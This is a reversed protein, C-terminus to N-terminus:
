VIGTEVEEEEIIASKIVWGTWTIQQIQKKIEELSMGDPDIHYHGGCEPGIGYKVSVPHTLQRGCKMCRATQQAVGHLKMKVMGKTEQLVVGQMVRLPMPIGNNWKDHFDFTSTPPNTMYQRVYIRSEKKSVHERTTIEPKLTHKLQVCVDGEFGKLVLRAQEINRYSKGNLIVPGDWEISDLLM